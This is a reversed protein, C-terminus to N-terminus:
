LFKLPQRVGNINYNQQTQIRHKARNKLVQFDNESKTSTGIVGLIIKM